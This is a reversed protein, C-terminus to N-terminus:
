QNKENGKGEKKKIKNDEECASGFNKKSGEVQVIYCNAHWADHRKDDKKSFGTIGVTFIASSM